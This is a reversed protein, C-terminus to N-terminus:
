FGRFEEVRDILGDVFQKLPTKVMTLIAINVDPEITIKIFTKDPDTSKLQIWISFRIPSNEDSLIKILDFEKREVIKMGAKGIGAISFSCSDKDAEWADLKDSPILGSFNTFDSLFAFVKEDSYGISGTRSEIKGM